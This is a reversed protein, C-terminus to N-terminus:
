DGLRVKLGTAISFTQIKEKYPGFGGEYQSFNQVYNVQTFVSWRNRIYREVGFGADLSLYSNKSLAGGDFYGEVLNREIEKLSYNRINAKNNSYRTENPDASALDYYSQITVTWAVGAYAYLSWKDKVLYNYRLNFPVSLSNFEFFTYIENSIGRTIDGGQFQIWVPTYRKSTYTIGTEYEWRGREFGFSVGSSYGLAHRALSPISEGDIVFAPNVIKDINPSGFMGIRLVAKKKQLTLRQRILNKDYKLQAIEPFSLTELSAVALSAFNKIISFNPMEAKPTGLLAITNDLRPTISSINVNATNDIYDIEIKQKKDSAQTIIQSQSEVIKKNERESLNSAKETSTAEKNSTDRDGKNEDLAAIPTRATINSEISKNESTGPFFRVFTILLLVMLVVEMTKWRFLEQVFYFERELKAAMIEWHAANYKAEYNHLKERSLADFADNEAEVINDADMRESLSDWSMADFSPAFGEMKKRIIHDFEKNKRM